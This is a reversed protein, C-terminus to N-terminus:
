EGKAEPMGPEDQDPDANCHISIFMDANSDNSIRCRDYLPVYRDDSRTLVITYGHMSLIRSASLVIDLTIDKEKLGHFSAGHDIGGHGADLCIIGNDIEM